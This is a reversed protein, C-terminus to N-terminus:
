EAIVDVHLIHTVIFLFFGNESKDLIELVASFAGKKSVTVLTM